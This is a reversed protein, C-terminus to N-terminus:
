PQQRCEGNGTAGGPSDNVACYTGQSYTGEPCAQYQGTPDRSNIPDSQVYSYKNWSGSDNAKASQQFRDASMFRGFQSTYYRQDAYDLQTSSDRTYTAFKVQDNSTTTLEEGYPMYRSTSNGSTSARAIVSGLRDTAVYNNDPDSSLDSGQKILRGNFYVNNASFLASLGINSGISSDNTSGAGYQNTAVALKEGYAGYIYFTQTVTVAGTTGNPASFTIKSLRKNDAGYQYTEYAGGTLNARVMRNNSDYVYLQNGCGYHDSTMNGNNDYCIDSSYPRNASVDIPLTFNGGAGTKQNM